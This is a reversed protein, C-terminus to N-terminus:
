MEVAPPPSDEGAPLDFRVVGACDAFAGGKAQTATDILIHLKFSSM